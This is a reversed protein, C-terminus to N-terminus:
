SSPSRGSVSTATTRRRSFRSQPIETTTIAVSPAPSLNPAECLKRGNFHRRTQPPIPGPPSNHHFPACALRPAVSLKCRGRLQAQFIGPNDHHVNSDYIMASEESLLGLGLCDVCSRDHFTGSVASPSDRRAYLARTRPPIRETSSRTCVGRSCNSSTRFM